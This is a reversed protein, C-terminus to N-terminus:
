KVTSSGYRMEREGEETRGLQLYARGLLLRAPSNAPDLQVATELRKVADGPRGLHLLARGSELHARASRPNELCAPELLVAAEEARGQRSLFAGYDIRADEAARDSRQRAQIADKFHREAEAPLDLAAFNLGAAREVRDLKARTAAKRAKEFAPVAERYRGATFLARGLFYCNDQDRPDADCAKAFHAAASVFDGASAAKMGADKWDAQFWALLALLAM